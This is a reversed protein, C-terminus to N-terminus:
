RRSSSRYWPERRESDLYGEYFREVHPFLSRAFARRHAEEPTDERALSAALEALAADKDVRTFRGQELIPEGAVIVTDVASAKARQM